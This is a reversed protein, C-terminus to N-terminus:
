SQSKQIHGDVVKPFYRDLSEVILPAAQGLGCASTALMTFSMDEMEGRWEATQTPGHTGKLREYMRRTGIRCPFCKGCSEESFFHMVSTAVDVIDRSDDFVM